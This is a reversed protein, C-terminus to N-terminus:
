KWNDPESKCIKEIAKFNNCIFRLSVMYYQLQNYNLVLKQLKRVFQAWPGKIKVLKLTEKHAEKSEDFCSQLLEGRLSAFYVKRKTADDIAKQLYIIKEMMGINPDSM